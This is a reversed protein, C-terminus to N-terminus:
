FKLGIKLKCYICTVFPLKNLLPKKLLSCARFIAKL